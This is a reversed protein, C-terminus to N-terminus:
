PFGLPGPWSPATAHLVRSLLFTFSSCAPLLAAQLSPIVWLWQHAKLSAEVLTRVPTFLDGDGAGKCEHHGLLLEM